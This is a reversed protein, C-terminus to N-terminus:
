AKGSPPLLRKAIQRAREGAHHSDAIEQILEALSQDGSQTIGSNLMRKIMLLNFNGPTRRVSELLAPEHGPLRELCHLIAWFVGFGDHEPFREFIALLAEIDRRDTDRGSLYSISEDLRQLQFEDEPSDFWSLDLTAM